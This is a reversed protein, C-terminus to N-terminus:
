NYPTVFMSFITMEYLEPNLYENVKEEAWEVNRDM